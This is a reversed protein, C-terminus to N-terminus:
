EEKSLAEEIAERFGEIRMPKDIFGSFNHGVIDESAIMGSLAIVPLDPYKEGIEKALEFGDMNPMRIDTIVLDPKAM